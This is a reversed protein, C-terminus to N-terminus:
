SSSLGASIIESRFWDITRTLGARLEVTPQWGLQTRAIAIDPQRLKPDDAPLPHREVVSSSGTLEIVLDALELM